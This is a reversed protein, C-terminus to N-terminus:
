VLRGDVDVTVRSATVGFHHAEFRTFDIGAVLGKIQDPFGSPDVKARLVISGNWNSDPVIRAFNKYLTNGDDASKIADELYKQLYASLGALAFDADGSKAVLSTKSAVWKNPNKVHDLM